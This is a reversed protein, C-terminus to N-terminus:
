AVRGLTSEDGLPRRTRLTDPAGEREVTVDGYQRLTCNLKMAGTGTFALPLATVFAAFTVVLTEGAAYETEIKFPRVEHTKSLHILGTLENHTPDDPWYNVVLAIDGPTSLGPIQLVVKSANALNNVDLMSIAPSPITLSEVNSIEQWTPESSADNCTGLYVHSPVPVFGAPTVNPDAAIQSCISAKTVSISAGATHAAATTGQQGRIIQYTDGSGGTVKVKETEIQLMDGTAVADHGTNLELTTDTASIDAALTTPM